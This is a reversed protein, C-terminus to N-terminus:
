IHILSLRPGLPEDPTSDVVVARWQGRRVPVLGRAYPDILLAEKNFTNRPGSPGDVRLAYRTGLALEDTTAQWVGGGVPELPVVATIWDLDTDDFIVLEVSSAAGSWVRLTGGDPGLTVGLDDYVSGQFPASASPRSSAM